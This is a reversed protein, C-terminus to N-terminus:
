RSKRTIKRSREEIKKEITHPWKHGIKTNAQIEFKQHIILSRM